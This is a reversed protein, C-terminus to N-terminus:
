KLTVRVGFTFSMSSPYTSYDVGQGVAILESATRTGTNSTSVAASFNGQPNFGPYKSITFLNTANFTLDVGALFNSGFWKKPLRYSVNFNNLKIYSADYIFTDAMGSFTGSLGVRPLTAYPNQNFNYADLIVNYANYSQAGTTVLNYAYYWLRKAGYSYTFNASAYLDKWSLSLNIGGFFKPFFNGLTTKDETTIRGDGSIDKIYINGPYDTTTRYNVQQGTEKNIKNLAAIEEGNAYYRGMTQYGWWNGLKEGEVLKSFEYYYPITIEKLIGDLKNVISTNTAINFGFTFVMDKKKIIDYRVDFEWGSNTISGVNQNIQSYSSNTPVSGLYILNDVRKSYYGFTGRLRENLLGFDIGADFLTSQEWRLSPSGLSSPKVGPEGMYNATSLTSMWDYYGLNQSGSQGLSTRLKLYPIIDNIGQMFNEESIVWALAGSPFFGWRNNPGFKSSGDARFTATVYYRRKFKYDLRAFFSSLASAYASSSASVNAASGFDILIEEDPFNTGTTSSSRVDYREVSQGLLAVIDHKGHIGAYTLTNDWVKTTYDSKYLMRRNSSSSYGQTGKKYFYDNQSNSYNITGTTKFKLGRIFEIEFFGTGRFSQGVGKNRNQLTVYPNEITTNTPIINISGDPNLPEIDPRYRPISTMLADKNNATRSSANITMGFKIAERLKTEFNIRGTYLESSGGKVIGEVDQASLSIYYITSQTGGRVSFDVKNNMAVRTMEDWWNVNGSTYADPRMQLMDMTWQSTNIMKFANENLFNRDSISFTGTRGLWQRSLTETMYKFEELNLTRLDNSQLRQFGSNVSVNITPAENASGQKTTVIIVGNAARSGYIATASADKLIDISEIDGLNLNFLSNTIDGSTNSSYDPVGDIVWLPQTAESSLTSIGRITVSVPSTPSASQIMVNVGAARGELLSQVNSVVPATEIERKTLRSVSGTADKITTTGYGLVVAQNLYETALKMRIVHLNNVNNTNIPIEVKEFGLCSVTIKKSNAPIDIVFKGDLDTSVGRKEDDIVIYAGVIPEGDDEAIVMGRIQMAENQQSTVPTLQIAAAGSREEPFTNPSIVIQKEVINYTYGTGKLIEKMFTEIDSDVVNISIIKQEDILKNNYVFTFDVQSEVSRLAEKLSVDKQSITVRQAFANNSYSLFCLILGILLLKIRVRSFSKKRKM